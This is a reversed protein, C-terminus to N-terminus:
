LFYEVCSFFFYDVRKYSLTYRQLLTIDTDNLEISTLPPPPPVEEGKLGILKAYGKTDVSKRSREDKLQTNKTPIYV